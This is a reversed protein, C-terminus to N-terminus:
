RKTKSKVQGVLASPLRLGVRQNPLHLVLSDSGITEINESRLSTESAISDLYLTIHISDARNEVFTQVIGSHTRRAQRAPPLSSSPKQNLFINTITGDIESLQLSKVDKKGEIPRQKLLSYQGVKSSAAQENTYEDQTTASAIIHGEIWFAQPPAIMAQDTLRMDSELKMEEAAGARVDAGTAPVAAINTQLEETPSQKKSKGGARFDPNSARENESSEGKTGASSQALDKEQLSEHLPEDERPRAEQSKRASEVKPQQQEQVVNEPISHIRRHDTSFWNNYVGVVVVIVAAAALGSIRAWPVGHGKTRTASLAARQDDYALRSKLRDKLEERAALKTGAAILSERKVAARCQECVGLHAALQAREEAPIQRLVYKSLLEGDDTWHINTDGAM